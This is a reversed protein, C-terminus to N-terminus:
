IFIRYCLLTPPAIAFSFIPTYHIARSVSGSTHVHRIRGRIILYDYHNADPSHRILWFFEIIMSLCLKLLLLLNLLFFVECEECWVRDLRWDVIEVISVGRNSVAHRQLSSCVFLICSIPLYDFVFFPIFGVFMLFWIWRSTYDWNLWIYTLFYIYSSITTKKEVQIYIIPLLHHDKNIAYLIIQFRILVVRRIFLKM